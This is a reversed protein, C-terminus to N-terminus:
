PTSVQLRYAYSPGGNDNSDMLVVFLQGVKAAALEIKSDTSDLVDDSTALIAGSEDYVTLLADLPSGLRAATVEISFKQGAQAALKFVDVNQASAIVGLITKGPTIPQTQAFGDNPEIEAILLDRPALPVLYPQSQGTPTVIVLSVHQATNGEPVTLELELQSDGLKQVDQNAPVAAKQKSHLKVELKADGATAQVETATDLRLGRVLLRVPMGPSFGLPVAVLPKPSVEPPKPDAASSWGNGIFVTAFLYALAVPLRQRARAIRQTPRHVAHQKVM